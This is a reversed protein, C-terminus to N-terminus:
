SGSEKPKLQKIEFPFAPQGPTKTQDARNAEPEPCEVLYRVELEINLIGLLDLLMAATNATRFAGLMTLAM